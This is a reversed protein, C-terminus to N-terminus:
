PMGSLVEAIESYFATGGEGLARIQQKRGKLSSMIQDVVDEEICIIKLNLQLRQHCVKDFAKSFDLLVM